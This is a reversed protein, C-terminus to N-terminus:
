IHNIWGLPPITEGKYKKLEEIEINKNNLIIKNKENKTMNEAFKILPINEIKFGM